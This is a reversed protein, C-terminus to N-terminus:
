DDSLQCLVHCLFLVTFCVQGDTVCCDAVETQILTRAAQMHCNKVAFRLPTSGAKTQANVFAELAAAQLLVSLCHRM